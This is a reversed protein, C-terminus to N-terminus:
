LHVSVPNGSTFSGTLDAIGRECIAAFVGIGSRIGHKDSDGLTGPIERQCDGFNTQDPNAGLSRQPSGTWRSRSRSM